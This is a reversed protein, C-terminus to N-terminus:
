SGWKKLIGRHIETKQCLPCYIESWFEWRPKLEIKCRPCIKSGLVEIDFNGKCKPCRGEGSKDVDYYKRFRRLEQWGFPHKCKM